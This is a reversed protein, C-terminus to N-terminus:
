VIVVPSGEPFAHKVRVFKLLFSFTITCFFTIGLGKNALNSIFMTLTYYIIIKKINERYCVEPRAFGENKCYGLM